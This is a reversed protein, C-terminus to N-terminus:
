GYYENLQKYKRIIWLILKPVCMNWTLLDCYIKGFYENDLIYYANYMASSNFLIHSIKFFWIFHTFRKTCFFAHIFIICWVWVLLNFSLWGNNCWSCSHYIVQKNLQRLAEWLWRGTCFQLESIQSCKRLLDLNYNLYFFFACVLKICFYSVTKYRSFGNTKM